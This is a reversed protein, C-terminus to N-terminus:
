EKTAPAVADVVSKVLAAKDDASIPTRGAVACAHFHGEYWGDVAASIREEISLVAKEARAFFGAGAPKTTNEPLMDGEAKAAREDASM